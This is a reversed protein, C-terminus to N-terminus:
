DNSISIKTDGGGSTFQLSVYKVGTDGAKNVSDMKLLMQLTQLKIRQADAINKLDAGTKISDKIRQIVEADNLIDSFLDFTELEKLALPLKKRDIIAMAKERMSLLAREQMKKAEDSLEEIQSVDSIIEVEDDSLKQNYSSLSLENTDIISEYDKLIKVGKRFVFAM